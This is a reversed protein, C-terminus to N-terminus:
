GYKRKYALELKRAQRLTLTGNCVKRHWANERSDSKQAQSWPEPWHSRVSRGAALLGACVSLAM